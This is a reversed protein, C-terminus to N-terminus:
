FLVLAFRKISWTTESFNWTKRLKTELAKFSDFLASCFILSVHNQIAELSFRYNKISFRDFFYGSFKWIEMGQITEISFRIVNAMRNEKHVFQFKEVNVQKFLRSLHIGITQSSIKKGIKQSRVFKQHTM